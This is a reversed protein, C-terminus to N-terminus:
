QQYSVGYWLNMCMQWCEMAGIEVDQGEEGWFPRADSDDGVERECVVVM